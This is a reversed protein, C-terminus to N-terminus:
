ILISFGAVSGAKKNKTVRYHGNEFVNRYSVTLFPPKGGSKHPSGLTGCWDMLGCLNGGAKAPPKHIIESLAKAVQMSFTQRFSM